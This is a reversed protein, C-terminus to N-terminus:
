AAKDAPPEFFWSDDWAIGRERALERIRTQVRRSMGNVGTEWRSVQAQSVGLLCAFAEQSSIGFVVERIYRAPSGHQSM